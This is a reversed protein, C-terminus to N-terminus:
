CHPMVRMLGPNAETSVRLDTDLVHASRYSALHTGVCSWGAVRFPQGRNDVVTEHIETGTQHVVTLEYEYSLTSAFATVVVEHTEGAHLDITNAPFYPGAPIRRRDQGPPPSPKPESAKLEPFRDDLFLLLETSPEPVLPSVRVLSGDPPPATRRVVPRIDVIRTGGVPGELHLRVLHQELSIAGDRTRIDEALSRDSVAGPQALRVVLEGGPFDAQESVYGWPAQDNHSMDVTVRLEPPAPRHEPDVRTSLDPWAVILVAISLVAAPPWWRDLTRSSLHVDGHVDRAQVAVGAVGTFTNRASEHGGSTGSGPADIM